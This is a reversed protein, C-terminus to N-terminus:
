FKYVQPGDAFSFTNVEAVDIYFLAFIPNDASKYIVKIMPNEELARTKAALDDVFVAQGSVSVVPSFDPPYSCFSVEAKAALQQYVDKEKSTCFFVRQGESFLYQFVRTKIAEGDRTALVGNPNEAFIKAFDFM